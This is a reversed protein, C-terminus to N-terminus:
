VPGILGLIPHGGPTVGDSIRLQGTEEDYFLQGSNGVFNSINSLLVRGSKIKQVPM